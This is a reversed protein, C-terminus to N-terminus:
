SCIDKILQVIERALLYMRLEILGYEILPNPNPKVGSKVLKRMDGNHKRSRWGSILTSNKFLRSLAKAKLVPIGSESTSDETLHVVSEPIHIPFAGGNKLCAEARKKVHM